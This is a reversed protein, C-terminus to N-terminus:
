VMDLRGEATNLSYGGGDRVSVGYREEIRAVVQAQLQSMIQQHHLIIAVQIRIEEADERSLRISGEPDPRILALKARSKRQTAGTAM